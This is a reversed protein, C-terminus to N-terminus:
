VRDSVSGFKRVKAYLFRVILGEVNSCLGVLERFAEGSHTKGSEALM